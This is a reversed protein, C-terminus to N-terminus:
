VPFLLMKLNDSFMKLCTRHCKNCTLYKYTHLQNNHWEVHHVRDYWGLIVKVLLLFFSPLCFWVKWFSPKHMMPPQCVTSSTAPYEPKWQQFTLYCAPRMRRFTQHMRPLPIWCKFSLWVCTWLVNQSTIYTIDATVRVKQSSTYTASLPKQTISVHLILHWPFRRNNSQYFLFFFHLAFCLAFKAILVIRNVLIESADLNSQELVSCDIPFDEGFLKSSFVNGLKM